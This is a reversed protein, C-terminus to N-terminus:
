VVRSTTMIAMTKTSSEMTTWTPPCNMPIPSPPTNIKIRRPPQPQPYLQLQLQYMLHIELQATHSALQIRKSLTAHRGAPGRGSGNSCGGGGRDNIGRGARSADRRDTHEEYKAM